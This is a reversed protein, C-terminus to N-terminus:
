FIRGRGRPSRVGAALGLAGPSDLPLAFLQGSSGTLYRLEGSNVWYVVCDGRSV